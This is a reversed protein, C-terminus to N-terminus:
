YDPQSYNKMEYNGGSTFNNNDVSSYDGGTTSNYQNPPVYQNTNSNDYGGYGHNYGHDYGNYNNNEIWIFMGPTYSPYVERVIVMDQNYNKNYTQLSNKSYFLHFNRIVNFINDESVINYYRFSPVVPIPVTIEVCMVCFNISKSALCSSHFHHGCEFKVLFINSNTMGTLEDKEYNPNLLDMCILCQEIQTIPPSCTKIKFKVIDILREMHLHIADETLNSINYSSNYNYNNNHTEEQKVHFFCHYIALIFLCFIILLFFYYWFSHSSSSSSSSSPYTITPSPIKREISRLCIDFAQYYNLSKLSTKMEEIINLRSYTNIVKDIESGVTIRIKRAKFYVTIALSISCKNMRFCSNNFFNNNDNDYYSDYAVGQYPTDDILRLYVDYSKSKSKIRSCLSSVEHSSLYNFRDLIINECDLSPQSFSFNYTSILIITYSILLTSSNM